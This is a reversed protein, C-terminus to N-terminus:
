NIISSNGNTKAESLNAPNEAIQRAASVRELRKVRWGSNVAGPM